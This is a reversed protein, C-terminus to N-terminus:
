RASIKALMNLARIIENQRNVQAIQIKAKTEQETQHQKFADSNFFDNIASL